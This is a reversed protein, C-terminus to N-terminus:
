SRDLDNQRGSRGVDRGAFRGDRGERRGPGGDSPKGFRSGVKKGGRRRDACTTGRGVAGTHRAAVAFRRGDARASSPSRKRLTSLRFTNGGNWMYGGIYYTGPPVNTTDWTYSGSSTVTNNKAASVQDIEIWYQNDGSWWPDDDYCLSIKSGALVNSATWDITVPQGATFTQSSPGTVAFTSAPVGVLTIAQTAHSLRFTNHGDWMYGALYYTGAPMGTTDWVYSSGGDAAAVRDIEIWQENGNFTKDRDYALSIKSGPVVGGATWQINM